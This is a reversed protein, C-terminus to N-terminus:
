AKKFPVAAVDVVLYGSGVEVVRALVFEGNLAATLIAQGLGLDKVTLEDGVNYSGAAYKDTKVIVNSNMILTVQGTAHVDYRETGCFCLFTNAVPTAGPRGVTGDAELIGWEGMELVVSPSSLKKDVRFMSEIGRLVSLSLSEKTLDEQIPVIRSANIM